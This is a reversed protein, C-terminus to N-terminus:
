IKEKLEITCNLLEFRCNLTRLEDTGNSSQRLESQVATRFNSIFQIEIRGYSAVLVSLLFASSRPLNLRRQATQDFCASNPWARFTLSFLSGFLCLFFCLLQGTTFALVTSVLRPRFLTASRRTDKQKPVNM